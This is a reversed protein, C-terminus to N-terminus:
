LPSMDLSAGMLRAARNMALVRYRAFDHGLQALLDPSGGYAREVLQEYLEQLRKNDLQPETTAALRDAPIGAKALIERLEASDEQLLADEIGSRAQLHTLLVLCSRIYSATWTASALEPLVKHELTFAITELLRATPVSM